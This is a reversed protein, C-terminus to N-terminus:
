KWILKMKKLDTDSLIKTRPKDIQLKLELKKTLTKFKTWSMKKESQSDDYYIHTLKEDKEIRLIAAPPFVNRRTNEKNGWNLIIQDGIKVNITFKSVGKHRLYGIEEKKLNGKEEIKKKSKEVRERVTEYIKDSLDNTPMIWCSKGFIRSRLKSNSTPKFARKIVEIQKLEHINQISLETSEQILNYSFAKSQSILIDNDTLVASEILNIASNTSLNSSGIVLFKDTLLLKSHLDQNSYIKVGKTFYNELTVASTNGNKISYNSADCVLIDGKTLKLNDSTVYAICATKKQKGTLKKNVETWIDGTIFQEM